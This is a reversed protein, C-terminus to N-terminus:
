SANGLESFKSAVRQVGLARILEEREMEYVLALVGQMTTAVVDDVSSVSLWVWKEEKRLLANLKSRSGLHLDKDFSERSLGDGKLHLGGVVDAIHLGLNLILLANRRILLTKDKGALLELVISRQGIVVDLLFRSQMQHKTQTTAKDFRRQSLKRSLSVAITLDATLAVSTKGRLSNVAPLLLATM